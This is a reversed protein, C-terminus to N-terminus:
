ALHWEWGNRSQKAIIAGQQSLTAIAYSAWWKGVGLLAAIHPASMPGDALMELVIAKREAANPNEIELVSM